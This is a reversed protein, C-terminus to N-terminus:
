PDLKAWGRETAERVTPAQQARPTDLGMAARSRDPTNKFLEYGPSETPPREARTPHWLHFAPIERVAIAIRLQEDLMHLRLALEDDNAGYAEYREDFGNVARLLRVSVAHHGGIIKPKHRKVLRLWAPANRKLWLQREYRRQRKALSALQDDEALTGLVREGEPELLEATNLLATRQETLNVRYPIVLEFGDHRLAGHRAIADPALMTDGDLVVILDRDDAGADRLLTRIGNNRVQNLLAVGQHPRQTLLLRPRSAPDPWTRCWYNTYVRLALDAIDAQDNDCTLSVASPPIRQHVLTGLCPELHRTTHTPIMLYVRSALGGPEAPGDAERSPDTDSAQM